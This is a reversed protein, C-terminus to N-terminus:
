EEVNASQSQYPVIPQKVFTFFELNLIRRDLLFVGVLLPVFCAAAYGYGYFAFGAKITWLTLLGNLLAFLISLALVERRCDFYLLIVLLM